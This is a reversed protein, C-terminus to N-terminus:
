HLHKFENTHNATGSSIKPVWMEKVQVGTRRNMESDDDSISKLNTKLEREM